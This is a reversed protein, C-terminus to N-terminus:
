IATSTCFSIWYFVSSNWLSPSIEVVIFPALFRYVAGSRRLNASPASHFSAQTGAQAPVVRHLLLCSQCTHPLATYIQNVLKNRREVGPKLVCFGTASLRQEGRTDRRADCSTLSTDPGALRRRLRRAMGPRGQSELLVPSVAVGPDGNKGGKEKALCLFPTPHPPFGRGFNVGLVGARLAARM